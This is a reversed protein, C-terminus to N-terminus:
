RALGLAELHAVAAPVEAKDRLELNLRPKVELRALAAFLSGWLINGLGPRWHRDAYGDTDQIHVHELMDGAAIVHHDVPPASHQHHAINAHGTDLSVRVSPSALSEVLAVREAPDRDEINEIVFTVGLAEARPLLPELTARANAAARYQGPLHHRNTYDWTTFPSHIVMQTAGIEECADLGQGFRKQVVARIDPDSTGISFGWFPGHIGLRGTYGALLRKTKAATTRWDGELLEANFFDQIELDRQDAIIWDGYTELADTPLCVGLLPLTHDTM